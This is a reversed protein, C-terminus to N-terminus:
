PRSTTASFVIMTPESEPEYHAILEDELAEDSARMLALYQETTDATRQEDSVTVTKELNNWGQAYSSHNQMTVNFIFHTGRRRM